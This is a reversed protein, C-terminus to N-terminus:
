WFKLFRRTLFLKLVMQVLVPAAVLVEPVAEDPVAEYVLKLIMQVLVPAAVLVEPVVEDPVAEYVLKLIM